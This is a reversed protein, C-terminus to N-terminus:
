VRDSYGVLGMPGTTSSAFPGAFFLLSGAPCNHPQDPLQSPVLYGFLFGRVQFHTSDSKRWSFGACSQRRVGHADLRDIAPYGALAKMSYCLFANTAIVFPLVGVVASMM